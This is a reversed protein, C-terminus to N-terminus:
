KSSPWHRKHRHRPRNLSGVSVGRTRSGRVATAKERRRQDRVGAESRVEKGKGKAVAILEYARSRSAQTGPTLCRRISRGTIVSRSGLKTLKLKGASVLVYLHSRSIDGLLRRAEAISFARNDFEPSSQHNNDPM